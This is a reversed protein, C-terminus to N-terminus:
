KKDPNKVSSSFEDFMRDIDKRNHHFGVDTYDSKKIVPLHDRYSSVIVDKVRVKDLNTPDDPDTELEYDIILKDPVLKPIEKLPMIPPTDKSNNDDKVEDTEM